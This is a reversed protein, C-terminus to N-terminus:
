LIKCKNSFYLLLHHELRYLSLGNILVLSSFSFTLLLHGFHQHFISFLSLVWPGNAEKAESGMRPPRSRRRRSTDQLFTPPPEDRPGAGVASPGPRGLWPLPSFRSDLTGRHGWSPQPARTHPDPTHRPRDVAETGPQKPLGGATAEHQRAQYPM